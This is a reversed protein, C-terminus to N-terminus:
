NVDSHIAIPNTLGGAPYGKGLRFPAPGPFGINNIELNSFFTNEVVDNYGIGQGLIYQQGPGAGYAGTNQSITETYQALENDANPSAYLRLESFGTGAGFIVHCEVRYWTNFAIPTTTTVVNAAPIDGMYMVIPSTTTRLWVACGNSSNDAVAFINLDRASLVTASNLVYFRAWIESQAGMAAAWAVFPRSYAGGLSSVAAGFVFEATPRSLYGAADMSIYQQFLHSGTGVGDFTNNGPVQSSNAVTITAQHPGGDFNHVLRTM